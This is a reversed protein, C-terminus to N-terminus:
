NRAPVGHLDILNAKLKIKAAWRVSPAEVAIYLIHGALVSSVVSFSLIGCAQAASPTNEFLKWGGHILLHSISYHILYLSYSIRGLYQLWRWNLWVNLRDMRGAIFILIATGVAIANAIEWEVFLQGIVVGITICFVWVSITRDLTWWTAMGLFFFWLFHTVWPMTTDLRHWHFFSYLSLPAFTLLLGVASTKAEGTRSKSTLRQAAGWGFVAVVYFQMEICVTWMGASLSEYGFADQLFMLHALLRLASVRDDFPSPLELFRACLADTAIAIAIAVWYAPVLRVIRRVVFSAIERPTVWLNRLTYAIVFGSIVLLIQVGGRLRLFVADFIAPASELAPWPYPEYWWIHFVVIALAAFGRLGDVFVFRSTSPISGSPLKAQIPPTDSNLDTEREGHNAM